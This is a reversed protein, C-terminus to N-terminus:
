LQHIELERREENTRRAVLKLQDLLTEFHSLSCVITQSFYSNLLGRSYGDLLELCKASPLFIDNVGGQRRVNDMLQLQESELVPELDSCTEARHRQFEHTQECFVVVWPAPAAFDALSTANEVKEITTEPSAVYIESATLLIPCYMFPANIDSRSLNWEISDSLLRPLAYQLQSLGHAIEKGFVNGQNLDIEVGKLCFISDEDFATSHQTSLIVPSFDDVVRLTHGLTVPSFGGDNPDPFFLWKNNRHRHKCEVLLELM